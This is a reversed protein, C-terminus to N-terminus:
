TLYKRKQFDACNVEFTDLNSNEVGFFVKNTLDLFEVIEGCFELFVEFSLSFSFPLVRSAPMESVLLDKCLVVRWDIIFALSLGCLNQGQWSFLGM